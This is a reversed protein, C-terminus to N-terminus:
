GSYERIVAILAVKSMVTIVTLMPANMVQVYLSVFLLYRAAMLAKISNETKLAMVGIVAMVVMMMVAM